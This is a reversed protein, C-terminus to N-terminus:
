QNNVDATIAKNHLCPDLHHLQKDIIDTLFALGVKVFQFPTKASSNSIPLDHKM